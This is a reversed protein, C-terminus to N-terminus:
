KTRELGIITNDDKIIRGGSFQEQFTLIKSIVEKISKGASIAEFHRAVGEVGIMEGDMNATETIGDTVLIFKDGPELKTTVLQYASGAIIGLPLGKPDFREVKNQNKRWILPSPHGGRALSLEGNKANYIAAAVTVFRGQPMLDSMGDNMQSLMIEPSIQDAYKLAMKCMACIFAAPLGHGTVDGIFFGYHDDSIKWLDYLDGGVAELPIYYAGFLCREDEPLKKPLIAQQISRAELLEQKFRNTLDRLEANQSAIKSDFNAKEDKIKRLRLQMSAKVLLQTPDHPSKIVVVDQHASDSLKNNTIDPEPHLLLIQSRRLRADSRLRSVLQEPTVDFCVSDLIILDFFTDKALTSASQIDEAHFPQYSRKQLLAFINSVTDLSNCIVLVRESYNDTDVNFDELGM